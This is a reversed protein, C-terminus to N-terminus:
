QQIFRDEKDERDKLDERDELNEKDELDEKDKATVSISSAKKLSTRSM